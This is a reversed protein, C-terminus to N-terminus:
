SPSRPDHAVRQSGPADSRAGWERAASALLGWVYHAMSRRVFIRFTPDAVGEEVSLMWVWVSAKALVTAVARQAAFARPHLDAVLLKSLLDRARRGSIDVATYYDSVDVVQHHTGALAQELSGILVQEAGTPSVLLWEDPSVWMASAGTGIATEGVAAPLSAGLVDAANDGIEALDGRLLLAGLYPKEAIRVNDGASIPAHSVLPSLWRPDIM